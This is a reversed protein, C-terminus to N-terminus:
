STLRFALWIGLIGGVFSGLLSTMSFGGAGFLMPSYAGAIVGVIMGFMIISKRSM